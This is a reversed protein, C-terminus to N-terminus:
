VRPEVHPRWACTQCGELLELNGEQGGARDGPFATRSYSVQPCLPPCLLCPGGPALHSHNHPGMPPLSQGLGRSWSSPHTRPYDEPPGSTSLGCFLSLAAGPCDGASTFKPRMSVSMKPDPISNHCGRSARGSGTTHALHSRSVLQYVAPQHPLAQGAQNAPVMWLRLSSAAAWSVGLSAESSLM